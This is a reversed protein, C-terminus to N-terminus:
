NLIEHNEKMLITYIWLIVNQNKDCNDNSADGNLRM